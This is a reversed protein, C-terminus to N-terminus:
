SKSLIPDHLDMIWNPEPLHHLCDALRCDGKDAECHLCGGGRLQVLRQGPLNDVGSVPHITVLSPDSTESEERFMRPEAIIIAYPMGEDVSRANDAMSVFLYYEKGRGKGNGNGNSRLFSRIERAYGIWDKHGDIPNLLLAKIPFDDISNHDQYDLRGVLKLYNFKSDYCLQSQIHSINIRLSPSANEPPPNEHTSTGVNRGALQFLARALSGPENSNTCLVLDALSNSNEVTDSGIILPCVHYRGIDKKLMKVKSHDGPEHRVCHGIRM